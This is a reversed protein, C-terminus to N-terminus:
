FFHLTWIRFIYLVCELMLLFSCSIIHQQSSHLIPYIKALSLKQEEVNVIALDLFQRCLILVTPFKWKKFM